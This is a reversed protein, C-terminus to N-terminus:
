EKRPDLWRAFGVFTVLGLAQGFLFGPVDAPRIGTMSDTLSRALTVAPNAFSTSSTFWYAAAIYAGVGVAVADLSRRSAFSAVTLLGLTAVAEGLIQGVGGRAKRSLNFLPAGFMIEAAAVGGIAGVLQAVVYPVLDRGPRGGSVVEAVTMLPNWHAGSVTGFALVLSVRVAGTAVSNALLALAANGGALREAMIGSGVVGALLFATGLGEVVARRGLSFGPARTDATEPSSTVPRLL